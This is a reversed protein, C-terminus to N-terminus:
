KPSSFEDGETEGTNQKASMYIISSTFEKTVNNIRLVAEYQRGEVHNIEATYGSGALNPVDLFIFYFCPETRLSLM